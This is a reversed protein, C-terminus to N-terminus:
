KPDIPPRRRHWDTAAEYAHSVRFLTAENFAKAYFQIGLPLSPPGDTFGCPLVIGPIGAM